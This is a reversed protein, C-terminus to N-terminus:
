ARNQHGPPIFHARPRQGLYDEVVWIAGKPTSSLGRQRGSPVVEVRRHRQWEQDLGSLTEGHTCLVAGDIAPTEILDLLSRGDAGVALQSRTQVPMGVRRAAPVLTQVCRLFPSSLLATAGYSAVLDGIAEAQLLGRSSLPRADDDSAWLRKDGADAHRVLFFM